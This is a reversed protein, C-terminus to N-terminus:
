SGTTVNTVVMASVISDNSASVYRSRSACVSPSSPTTADSMKSVTSLPLTVTTATTTACVSLTAAFTIRRRRSWVATESV